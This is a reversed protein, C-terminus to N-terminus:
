SIMPQWPTTDATDLHRGSSGATTFGWAHVVGEEDLAMCWALQTSSQHYGQSAISTIRGQMPPAIGVAYPTPQNGVFPRGLPPGQYGCTLVTGGIRNKRDDLTNHQLFATQNYLYSGSNSQGLQVIYSPWTVNNNITPATKNEFDGVGLVGTLNWGWSYVEGNKCLCHTNGWVAGGNWVDIVELGASLGINSVLTPTSRQTVSNDGLQGYGNYGWAYLRGDARIAHVFGTTASDTSIAIKAVPGGISIAIPSYQHLINGNGIQGNLGSGVMYLLNDNTIFGTTHGNSTICRINQNFVQIKTPSTRYTVDGQGLQGYNNGGWSYVDGDEMLAFFSNQSTTGHVQGGILYRVPGADGPFDMRRFFPRTTVSGDGLQGQGNYGTAYVVGDTTLVFTNNYSVLLQKVEWNHSDAQEIGGQTTNYLAPRYPLRTLGNISGHKGNSSNGWMFFGGDETTVGSGAEQDNPQQAIDWTGMNACHPFTTADTILNGLRNTPVTSILTPTAAVTGDANTYTGGFNETYDPNVGRYNNALSRTRTHPRYGQRRWSPAGNKVVLIESNNGVPLRANGGDARIYMDGNTTLPSSAAAVLAEIDIVLAVSIGECYVWARKGAAIEIYAPNAQGVTSLRIPISLKNDIVNSFGKNPATVPVYSATYTGADGSFSIVEKSVQDTSLVISTTGPSAVTIIEAPRAATDILELLADAGFLREVATSLYVLDRANAASTGTASALTKGQAKINDILERLSATSM